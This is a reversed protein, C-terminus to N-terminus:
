FTLLQTNDQGFQLSLLTFDHIKLLKGLVKSWYFPCASSPDITEAAFIRAVVLIQSATIIKNKRNPKDNERNGSKM